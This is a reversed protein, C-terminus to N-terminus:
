RHSIESVLAEGRALPFTPPAFPNTEDKVIRVPEQAKTKKANLLLGFATHLGLDHCLQISFLNM